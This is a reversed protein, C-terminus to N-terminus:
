CNALQIAATLTLNWSTREKAHAPLVCCAFVSDSLCPSEVM